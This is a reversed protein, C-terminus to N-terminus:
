QAEPHGLVNKKKLCFVAYSIIQHSSNLRTSKRDRQVADLRKLAQDVKPNSGKVYAGISILDEVSKYTALVSRINGAAQLQEPKVVDRMVRSVSNLVDIAPYHNQAALERSVVVHGDM